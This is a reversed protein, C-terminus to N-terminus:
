QGGRAFRGRRVHRAQGVEPPSGLIGGSARHEALSEVSLVPDLAEEAGTAHARDVGGLVRAAAAHDGDLDDVLVQGVADGHQGAELALRLRGPGDVGLVDGAAEVGADIGLGRAGVHHQLVEDALVQLVHEPAQAGQPRVHRQADGGLRADAHGLRVLGADEVAVDLRGVDEEGLALLARADDLHEVEAHGLDAAVRAVDAGVAGRAPEGAGPRDQARWEVHRRLLRARHLVDVVARVDPGQPHHEVLRHRPTRRVLVDRAQAVEDQRQAAVQRRRHLLERGPDPGLHGGEDIARQADIGALAELAGALHHVREAGQAGLADPEAVLHEGGQVVGGVVVDRGGVEAVRAPGDRARRPHHRGLRQRPRLRAQGRAGVRSREIAGRSGRGSGRVPRVRRTRHGGSSRPQRVGAIPARRRRCRALHRHDRHRDGAHQEPAGRRVREEPRGRGRDVRRARGRHQCRDRGAGGRRRGRRRRHGRVTVAPVVAAGTPVAGAGVASGEEVLCTGPGMGVPACARTGPVLAVVAAGVAM